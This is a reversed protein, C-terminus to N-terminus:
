CVSNGLVKMLFYTKFRINHMRASEHPHCIITPSLDIKQDTM